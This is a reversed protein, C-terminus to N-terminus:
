GPRPGAPGPPPLPPQTHGEGPPRPQPPRVSQSRAAVDGMVQESRARIEEARETFPTQAAPEDTRREGLEDYLARYRPTAAQPYEPAVAADVPPDFLVHHVTRPATGNRWSLGALQVSVDEADVYEIYTEASKHRPPEDIDTQLPLARFVVHTAPAPFPVDQFLQMHLVDDFAGQATTNWFGTHTGKRPLNGHGIHDLLAHARDAAPRSPDHVYRHLGPRLMVLDGAYLSLRAPDARPTDLQPVYYQEYSQFESELREGYRYEAARHGKVCYHDNWHANNARDAAVRPARFYVAWEGPPRNHINREPAPDRYRSWWKTGEETRRGHDVWADPHAEYLADMLLSALGRRDFGDVVELFGVELARGEPHLYFEVHGVAAGNVIAIIQRGPWRHEAMGKWGSLRLSLGELRSRGTVAM